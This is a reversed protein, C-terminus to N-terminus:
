SSEGSSEGSGINRRFEPTIEGNEYGDLFEAYVDVAEYLEPVQKEYYLGCNGCTIVALKYGPIETKSFKIAMTRSSCHPCQFVSPIRRARRVIKKYKKRRRGM